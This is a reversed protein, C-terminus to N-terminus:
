ARADPSRDGYGYGASGYDYGYGYHARKQDFKTLVVGLIVTNAARLRGIAVRAMSKKTGHSEIVFLTAEVQNAILPADALGMVPPADLVIHDFRQQLEKLLEAFREGSLLEPASPPQPGTTMVFLGDNETILTGSDSVGGSLYNSLGEINQIGLEHHVSPSRLDCDILLTRRNQRALSRALAYSTTSKGEGARTSTVAFVRPVGHDTAFSLTTRLSLYAESLASKVDNLAVVPNQDVVPTTGLLPTELLAEVESPDSIAEDVQELAFALGIGLATGALLAVFLNLLLRPSSPREAIEAQDVVSINNVGVGGAVGIEKYRQLLADYLQRNTDADRQFINYQISRKRADLVNTKLANVRERLETERKVSAQYAERITRQGRNEETAIARDLQALQNRQAEAPPYDAKFQTMLRAYESAVEARRERLRPLASSQANQTDNRAGLRSEAEVRDVTARALERNLTALDDVALSREGSLGGDGQAPTSAPLNVIGERAAYAVLQRESEDIRTRLQGLRQELFRRAYATAEFRRALTTSVFQESWADVVKKSFAPDPSTFSIRVLRSLREPAVSFNDLLVSSAAAIRDARTRNGGIPRGNAFMEDTEVGFMEFFAPDDQLRLVEVVANAQSKTQLLGYQTEYFEQDVSSSQEDVQAGQVQTFNRTERQIELTASSTYKPTMLLTVILGALLAAAIAGVIYWKRRRAISLYRSIIPMAGGADQDDAGKQVPLHRPATAHLRDISNM